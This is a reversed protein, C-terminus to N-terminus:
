EVPDLGLALRGTFLQQRKEHLPHYLGGHVDRFLRELGLSRFFAAGGVVEMAKEVTQIAARAAITKRIVIANATENVLAFNYNDTTDIMGQLAMQATTLANTMEGLLYPLHPDERKRAVQTLALDYAAEAVGIYVSMILPLAVAAVVNFFPHWKDKPRRLAIASEPVFVGDIVVDHSGTGRMGLTRWNDMITVKDDKFPVPFHLVTPGDQPDDYVASTVLVEGM